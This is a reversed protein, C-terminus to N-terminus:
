SVTPPPTDISYVEGGVNRSFRYLQEREWFEQMQKEIQTFDYRKEMTFGGFLSKGFVIFVGLLSIL